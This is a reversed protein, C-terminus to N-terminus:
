DSTRPRCHVRRFTGPHEVDQQAAAGEHVAGACRSPRTVDPDGVAADHRHPLDVVGRALDDVARPLDDSRPEDIRVGVVVRLQEPIRGRRRRREVTDRGDEAAVAAEGERREVFSVGLVQLAHHRLDFPHRQGREFLADRPVPPCEAVVEVPEFAGDPHVDGEEGTMAREAAPHHAGVRDPVLCRGVLLLRHDLQEVLRQRLAREAEGRRQRERM